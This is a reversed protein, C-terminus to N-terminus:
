LLKKCELIFDIDECTAGENYIREIVEAAYEKDEYTEALRKMYNKVIQIAEEQDLNNKMLEPNFYGM